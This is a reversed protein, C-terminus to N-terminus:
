RPSTDTYAYRAAPFRIRPSYASLGVAERGVRNQTFARQIATARREMCARLDIPRAIAQTM